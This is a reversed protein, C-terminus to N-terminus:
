QVRVEVSALAQRLIEAAREAQPKDHNTQLQMLRPQLDEAVPCTGDPALHRFAPEQYTLRFAGYPKEGGAAVIAQAFPRWLDKSALAIGYCWPTYSWGTPVYQPTIWECGWVASAYCQAAYRRNAILEDAEELRALGVAAQVDSMQYNWGMRVHRIQEPAREQKEFTTGVTSFSRAIEALRADNTVLMGGEGIPLIKSAECSYSTFSASVHPNLTEAADDVCGVGNHGSWLGYLSVPIASVVYPKPRPEWWNAKHELLWTDPAVDVFVPTAGTHLVALATSGYTLPPVAVVDSAGVGLAALATHMTCTGNAHAIAYKAGVYKAFAEEFRRVFRGKQSNRLYVAEEVYQM